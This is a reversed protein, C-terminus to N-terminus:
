PERRASLRHVLQAILSANAPPFRYDCLRPPDVWEFRDCGIAKPEGGTHACLYPHLRVRVAPYDHEIVDLAATPRVRIALEEQLERLLCQESSEGAERKGGPFEWYGALHGDTKRRCVLVRGGTGLVIGIVVDIRPPPASPTAADM